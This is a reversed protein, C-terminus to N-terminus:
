TVPPAGRGGIVAEVPLIAVVEGEAAGGLRAEVLTDAILRARDRPAFVEIKVQEVLHDSSLFDAHEGYGRAKTVTIDRVGVEQLRKEAAELSTRRLIAVVLVCEMASEKGQKM